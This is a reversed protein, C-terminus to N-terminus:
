VKEGKAREILRLTRIYKAWAVKGSNRGQSIREGDIEEDEPVFIYDERPNFSKYEPNMKKFIQIGNLGDGLLKKVQAIESKSYQIAGKESKLKWMEKLSKIAVKFHRELDKSQYSIDVKMTIKTGDTDPGFSWGLPSVFPDLRLQYPQIPNFFYKLRYKRIFDEYHSPIEVYEENINGNKLLSQVRKLPISIRHIIGTEISQTCDVKTFAGWFLQGKEKFIFAKGKNPSKLEFISKKLDSFDKRYTTSEVLERLRPKVSIM